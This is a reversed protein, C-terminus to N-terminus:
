RGSRAECAQNRRRGGSDDACVHQVRPRANRTEDESCLLLSAGSEEVKWQGALKDGTALCLAAQIAFQSKGTGGAAGMLAVTAAPLFDAFLFRRAAPPADLFGGVRMSDIDRLFPKNVGEAKKAPDEPTAEEAPFDCIQEDLPVVALRFDTETRGKCSAHLCKFRGEPFAGGPLQFVTSSPAGQEGDTHEEVFPCVIHLKGEGEGTVLGKEFLKDVVRQDEGSLEAGHNGEKLATRAEYAPADFILAVDDHAGQYLGSRVKVRDVAGVTLVPAATYDAQITDYLSKDLAPWDKAWVALQQSAYPTELWFWVHAKLVGKNKPLGASNSLQWHFSAGHFRGPMHKAIFEIIADVPRALPDAVPTFKDIDTMFSHLPQDEFVSKRRYIEDAQRMYGPRSKQVKEDALALAPGADELGIFKGRIVLYRPKDELKMHLASLERINTVRKTQHRFYTDANYGETTDDAHIRKAARCGTRCQLITIDDHEQQIHAEVDATFSTSQNTVGPFLSAWLLVGKRVPEVPMFHMGFTGPYLLDFVSALRARLANFVNVKNIKVRM